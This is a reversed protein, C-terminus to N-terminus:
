FSAAQSQHRTDPDKAIRVRVTEEEAVIRISVKGHVYDTRNNKKMAKLLLDKLDVEQTTLAQRKDRIKAYQKALTELEEIEPEEMGPLRKIGEKEETKPM